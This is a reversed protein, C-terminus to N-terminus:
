YNNAQLDHQEQQRQKRGETIFDILDQVKRGTFCLDNLARVVKEAYNERGQYPGDQKLLLGIMKNRVIHQEDFQVTIVKSHELGEFQWMKKMLPCDNGIFKIDCQNPDGNIILKSRKGIRGIVADLQRETANQAEDLIVISHNYTLGRLYALPMTQIVGDYMLRDLQKNSIKLAAGLVDLCPRIYPQIKEDVNGPLHGMKQNDCNVAPRIFVM